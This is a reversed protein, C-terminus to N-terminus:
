VEIAAEAAPETVPEAAVEVPEDSARSTLDVPKAKAKPKVTKIPEPGDAKAAKPEPKPLLSAPLPGKAALREAEEHTKGAALAQKVRAHFRADHGPLFRGGKTAGGCGCGCARPEKVKAERPAKEKVEPMHKRRNEEWAAVRAASKAALEQAHTDDYGVSAKDPDFWGEEVEQLRWFRGNGGHAEHSCWAVGKSNWDEREVLLGHGEPCLMGWKKAM